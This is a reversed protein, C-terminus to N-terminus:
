RVAHGIQKRRYLLWNFGSLEGCYLFVKKFTYIIHHDVVLYPPIAFNKQWTHVIFWESPQVKERAAPLYIIGYDPRLLCYFRLLLRNRFDNDSAVTIQPSGTHERMYDLAELYHGRGMKIFNGYSAINGGFILLIVVALLMRGERCQDAARSLCSSLLIILFPYLSFFYRFHFFVPRRLLVDLCIGLVCGVCFAGFISGKRFFHLVENSLIMYVVVAIAYSYRNDRPFGVLYAATEKIAELLPLSNRGGYVLQCLFNFYIIVVLIAPFAFIKLMTSIKQKLSVGRQQCQFYIFMSFLGLSIYGFSLHSLFGLVFSCYFAFLFWINDKHFFESLTYFSLLSFLSVLAYGRAESSYFILTFSIAVFAVTILRWIRAPFLRVVILYTLPMTLVGAVFSLLRFKLWYVPNGNDILYIFFSNLPHNNDHFLRTIIELPSNVKSVLFFSWIEDLWFEDFIGLFRLWAGFLIIYFLVKGTSFYRKTIITSDPKM